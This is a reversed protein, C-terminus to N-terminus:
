SRSLKRPRRPDRPPPAPKDQSPNTEIKKPSEEKIGLSENLDRYFYDDSKENLADSHTPYQTKLELNEKRLPIQPSPPSFNRQSSSKQLVHMEGSSSGRDIANNQPLSRHGNDVNKKDIEALKTPNFIKAIATSIKERFKKILGALAIVPSTEREKLYARNSLEKEIKEIESKRTAWSKKAELQEETLRALDTNSLRKQNKEIGPTEVEWSKKAELQEETLERSIKQFNVNSHKGVIHHDNQGSDTHQNFTNSM